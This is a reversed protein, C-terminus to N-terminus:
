QEKSFRIEKETMSGKFTEPRLKELGPLWSTTQVIMRTLELELRLCVGGGTLLTLPALVTTCLLTFTLFSIGFM